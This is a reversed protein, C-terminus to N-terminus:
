CKYSPNIRRALLFGLTKLVSGCMASLWNNQSSILVSNVSCHLNGLRFNNDRAVIFPINVRDAEPLKLM